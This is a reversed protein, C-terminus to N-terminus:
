AGIARASRTSVACLPSLYGHVPTRAITVAFVHTHGLKNLHAILLPLLEKNVDPLDEPKDTATVSAHMMRTVVYYNKDSLVFTPAFVQAFGAATLAPRLQDVINLVYPQREPTVPVWGMEVMSKILSERDGVKRTMFDDLVSDSANTM